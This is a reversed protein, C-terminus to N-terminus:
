DSGLVGWGVQYRKFVRQVLEVTPTQDIAKLEIWELYDTSGNEESRLEGGLIEVDFVIAVTYFGDGGYTLTTLVKRPRVHLGTEEFVERVMCAEPEEAEEIGGGPLTFMGVNKEISSLRPLLVKGGQVIWAYCGVRM